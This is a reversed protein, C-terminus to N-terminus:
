NQETNNGENDKKDNENEEEKKGFKVEIQLEAIKEFINKALKEFFTIMRTGAFGSIGVLFGTLAPNVGFGLCLLQALYGSFGAIFCHFFAKRFSFKENKKKNLIYDTFGGVIAIAIGKLILLFQDFFQIFVDSLIYILYAIIAKLTNM